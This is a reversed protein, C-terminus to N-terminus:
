SNAKLWTAFCKYFGDIAASTYGKAILLTKFKKKNTPNFEKKVSDSLNCTLSNRSGLVDCWVHNFSEALTTKQM